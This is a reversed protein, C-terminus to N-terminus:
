QEAESPEDAHAVPAFDRAKIKCMRGDPHHWVIGEAGFRAHTNLVVERVDDYDAMEFDVVGAEDHRILSHSFLGEPNGNVRPGCLEYTGPKWDDDGIAEALYKAYGSESAPIWGMVKATVDDTSIRVFGPPTAKGPKVERRAWWQSGDYMVCTGDWKRLARVGPDTFVWGCRPDIERTVHDKNGDWDRVFLSPIKEM